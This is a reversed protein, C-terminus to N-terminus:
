GLGFLPMNLYGVNPARMNMITAIVNIACGHDIFYGSQGAFVLFGVNHGCGTFGLTSVHDLRLCCAGGPVFFTSLLMTFAFPLIWFSWSNM